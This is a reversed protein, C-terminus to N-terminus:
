GRSFSGESRSRSMNWLTLDYCSEERQLLESQFDSPKSWHTSVLIAIANRLNDMNDAAPRGLRELGTWHHNHQFSLFDLYDQQSLSSPDRFLPGFRHVVEDRKSVIHDIGPLSLAKQVDFNM